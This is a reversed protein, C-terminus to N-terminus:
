QVEITAVRNAEVPTYPQETDGKAEMTILDRNLGAKVLANVVARARALSLAENGAFRDRSAYGTVKVPRGLKAITSINAMTKYDLTAKAKDFGIAPVVYIIKTEGPVEKIIEKPKNSLDKRLNNVTNNLQNFEELTVYKTENFQTKGFKYVVGGNLQLVSRNINFELGGNDKILGYVVAPEVYLAIRKGLACEANIAFNATMDNGKTNFDHAWGPGALASLNFKRDLKTRFVNLVNVKALATTNLYDVVKGSNLFYANSGVAVGFIPSIDKGLRLGANGNYKEFSAQDTTPTIVGGNVTVYTNDFFKPTDQKMVVNQSQISLTTMLSVVLGLIFKKM